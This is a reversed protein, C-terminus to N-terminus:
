ETIQQRIKEEIKERQEPVPRVDLVELARQWTAVAAQIEGSQLLADGLHELIIPDPDNGDAAQKLQVVAEQYDGLRYLAWGLSDRYAANEPEAAVARQIMQLARRLSKGRDALLYGLDNMASTDQPFEDLVRQLWEEAEDLRHDYVCTNSLVFRADRVAERVGPTTYDAEFSSMWAQYAQEADRYHQAQYLIWAPRLQFAPFDVRLEAARRAAKLAEETDGSLQLADALYYQFVAEQDGARNLEVATRLIHAARVQQGRLLMELGWNLFLEWTATTDASAKEFFEDSTQFEEAATALLGLGAAVGDGLSDGSGIRKRALGFLKQLRPRDRSIALVEEGLPDLGHVATVARGLLSLLEEDEDLRYLTEILARYADLTPQQRLM